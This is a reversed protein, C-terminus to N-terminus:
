NSHKHKKKRLLEMASVASFKHQEKRASRSDFNKLYEETIEVSSHGMLRSLKYIEGGQELYIRAFIHRSTHASIQVPRYQHGAGTCKFLKTQELVCTLFHAFVSSFFVQAGASFNTCQIRTTFCHTLKTASFYPLQIPDKLM